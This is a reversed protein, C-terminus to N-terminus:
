YSFSKDWSRNATKFSFDGHHNLSYFLDNNKVISIENSNTIYSQLAWSISIPNFLIGNPNIECNFKYDKLYEGINESFCSGTMLISHHHNIELSSKAPSYNLHFNM